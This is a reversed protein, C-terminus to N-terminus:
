TDELEEGTEIVFGKGCEPCEIEKLLTGAPRVSIWRKGCRVCIVESVKHPRYEDLQVIKMDTTTTDM